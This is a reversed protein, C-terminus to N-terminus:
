KSAVDDGGKEIFIVGSCPVSKNMDCGASECLEMCRNFQKTHNAACGECTAHEVQVKDYKKGNDIFTKSAM